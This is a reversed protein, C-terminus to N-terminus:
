DWDVNVMLVYEGKYESSGISFCIDEGENTDDQNYMELLKGELELAMSAYHKNLEDFANRSIKYEEDCCFDNKKMDNYIKAAFQDADKAFRLTKM